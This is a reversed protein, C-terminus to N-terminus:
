KLYTDWRRLPLLPADLAVPVHDPDPVALDGLVQEAIRGVPLEEGLLLDDREQEVPDSAGLDRREDM